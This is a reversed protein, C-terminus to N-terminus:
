QCLASSEYLSLRLQGQSTLLTTNRLVSLESGSTDKRAQKNPLSLENTETTNLTNDFISISLSETETSGLCDTSALFFIVLALFLTYILKIKM